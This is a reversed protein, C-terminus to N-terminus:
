KRTPTYYPPLKNWNLGNSAMNFGFDYLAQMYKQEFPKESEQKFNNPIDIYNFDFGTDISDLYARYLDGVGQTKIMTSISRGGISLLKPPVYKWEPDVRGNRIIFVRGSVTYGAKRWINASFKLFKIGFVQTMVGGDVHMEDYTKGEAEVDIYVPPVAAPVSASAIMVKRFLKLAEPHGSAAIAGMNWFVLQQADLQTTGIFLLRGRSHEQAVAQLEKEGFLRAILHKLPTFDALADRQQLISGLFRKRYVNKATVNKFEELSADYDPGLFAFTAQLAGTSIGTVIDFEPRYGSATWGNLVGAGFAGKDGGGSLSLITLERHCCRAEKIAVKQSDAVIRKVEKGYGELNEDTVPPPIFRIDGMEPISAKYVLNEPVPNRQRLPGCSVTIIIVLLLVWSLTLKHTHDRFIMIMM